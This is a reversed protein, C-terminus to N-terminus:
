TNRHRPLHNDAVCLQEHIEDTIVSKGSGLTGTILLVSVIPSTM